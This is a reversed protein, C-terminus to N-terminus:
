NNCASNPLSILSAAYVPTRRSRHLDLNQRWLEHRLWILSADALYLDRTYRAVLLGINSNIRLYYKNLITVVVTNNWKGCEEGM